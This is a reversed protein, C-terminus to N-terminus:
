DDLPSKYKNMLDISTQKAYRSLLQLSTHGMLRSITLLDIGKRLCELCFTRRFDHLAPPKELGAKLSLRRVLERLTTYAIREEQRNIFLAGTESKRYRFWKRIQKRTKKGIFVFRPKRGKGQRILISSDVLNIDEINISCLENARVGTDLLIYLITRDREGYFKNKPCADVLSDFDEKSIGEIPEISVKPAKVKKIPNSFNPEVEDWYWNLFAKISRYACHVGGDTHENDKLILLYDRIISPTIQSIYKAEIDELYKLFPKLNDWYFKITKKSLNQAKRENLFAQIQVEVFDQGILSTLQDKQTKSTVKCRM